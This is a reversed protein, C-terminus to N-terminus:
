VYAYLKELLNHIREKINENYKVYFLKVGCSECLQMKWLDRKITENVVNDDYIGHTEYHQIGQCEIAANYDPLYFDLSMRGGNYGILWDFKKQNEYKINYSKLLTETEQELHSLNCKPCGQGNLHNYPTQWFEGHKSCIICVKTHANIYKVKSYDYSENKHKEKAKKIFEATCSVNKERREENACKPCGCGSLHNNPKQWFRGHKPCIICVPTKNDIYVTESYIYHKNKHISINKAKEIFNDTCSSLKEKIKEKACQPCGQGRLHHSPTQHFDGHNLCTIIVPTHNNVYEVNSYDYKDNGHIKKAEKIFNDSGKRRKEIACCPCGCGRLHKYPMQMFDGHKPCTIIIPLRSNIYEVKSYDYNSQKHEKVKKAKKVFEETQLARRSM